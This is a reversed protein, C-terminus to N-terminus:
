RGVSFLSINYLTLPRIIPTWCTASIDLNHLMLWAMENLKAVLVDCLSIFPKGGALGLVYV